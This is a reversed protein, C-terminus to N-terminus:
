LNISIQKKRFKPVAFYGVLAIIMVASAMVTGLPVEPIVHFGTILMSDVPDLGADFVGDNDVDMVIDYNGAVLHPAWIQITQTGPGTSLTLVEVGDSVDTLLDGENWVAQDTVVYLTVTQGTAPVTVYVIESPLFADKPNGLSDSSWIKSLRLTIEKDSDLVVLTASSAYGVKSATVSYDGAKLVFHVVGGDTTDTGTEPGIAIVIVGSILLETHDDIVNVTLTYRSVPSFLVTVQGMQGGSTLGYHWSGELFSFRFAYSYDGQTEVTLTGRYQDNGGVDAFYVAPFWIWSPSNPETGLPGYGAEAELDPTQGPLETMGQIWVECYLFETPELENTITSSPHLNGTWGIDSVVSFAPSDFVEIELPFFHFDYLGDRDLDEVLDYTGSALPPNWAVFTQIGGLGLDVEEYGDSSVDLLADGDLWVDKHDTVYLRPSHGTAGVTIFVTEDPLFTNKPNGGDDSAYIPGAWSLTSTPYLDADGYYVLEAGTWPDSSIGKMAESVNEPSCWNSFFTYSGWDGHSVSVTETWGLYCHVGLSVLTTGMTPNKAGECAEAYFLSDPYQSECYFSFFGPSVAYLFGAGPIMVPIVRFALIDLFHFVWNIWNIREGTCLLVETRWHWVNFLTGGHTRLFITGYHQNDLNAMLSVTVQQDKYYYVTYGMYHLNNRINDILFPNPFQWFFPDLIVAHRSTPSVIPESSPDPVESDGILTNRLSILFPEGTKFHLWVDFDNRGCSNVPPQNNFWEVLMDAAADEGYTSNWEKYNQYGETVTANIVVFDELPDPTSSEEAIAVNPLFLFISFVTMVVLLFSLIRKM